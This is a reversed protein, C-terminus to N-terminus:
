AAAGSPQCRQVSRLDFTMADHTHSAISEFGGGRTNPFAFETVGCVQTRHEWSKRIHPFYAPNTAHVSTVRRVLAARSIATAMGFIKLSVDGLWARSTDSHVRPIPSAAINEENRRPCLPARPVANHAPAVRGSPSADYNQVSHLAIRTHALTLKTQRQQTSHITRDPRLVHQPPQTNQVRWTM